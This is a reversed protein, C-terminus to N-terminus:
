SVDLGSLKLLVVELLCGEFAQTAKVDFKLNKLASCWQDTHSRESFLCHCVKVYDAHGPCDVHAYHRKETEYEVHAQDCTLDHFMLDEGNSDLGSTSWITVHVEEQARLLSLLVLTFHGQNSNEAMAIVVERHDIIWWVGFIQTLDLVVWQPLPSVV